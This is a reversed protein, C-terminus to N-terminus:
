KLAIRDLDPPEHGHQRILLCIQGLHFMEHAFVHILVGSVDTLQGEGYTVSRADSVVGASIDAVLRRTREYIKDWNARLESVSEYKEPLFRQRKQEFIVSGVWYDEADMLHALIDRVSTMGTQREMFEERDLRGVADLVTRRSNELHSFIEQITM